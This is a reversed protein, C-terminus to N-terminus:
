DHHVKAYVNQFDQWATMAETFCKHSVEDSLMFHKYRMEHLLKVDAVDPMSLRGELLSTFLQSAAIAEPDKRIILDLAPLMASKNEGIHVLLDDRAAMLQGDAFTYKERVYALGPLSEIKLVCRAEPDLALVEAIDENREVFSLMYDHIGEKKAALIFHKDHETLYSGKISFNKGLINVAQGAGLAYKPDPDVVIRNEAISVIRSQDSGRFVITAPLDVAIEHSLEIDGYTPDAWKTIRLQRGKLDMWLKKKHQEAIEKLHQVIEETSHTERMGVNYRAGDLLPHSYMREILSTKSASPLTAILM